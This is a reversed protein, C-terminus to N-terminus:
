IAIGAVALQWASDKNQTHRLKSDAEAVNCRMQHSIKHHADCRAAGHKDVHHVLADRIWRHEKRPV